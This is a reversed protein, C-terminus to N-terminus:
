IDTITSAAQPVIPLCTGGSPMGVATGHAQLETYLKAGMLQDLCPTDAVFVGDSDDRKGIGVGDMIIVLVPGKRGQFFDLKKLKEVM